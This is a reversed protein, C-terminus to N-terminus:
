DRRRLAIGAGILALGMCALVPLPWWTLGAQPILPKSPETPKETPKPDPPNEPDVKNTILFKSGISQVTVHFGDIADEVVTWHANPDLNKWECKWDNKESLKVVDAIAGDKLLSITLEDPRKVTGDDDWKKLAQLNIKTTSPPQAAAKVMVIAHGTEGVAEDNLVFLVSKPSYIMEDTQKKPGCLLYLGEQLGDVSDAGDEGTTFIHDATLEDLLIYGFLTDAVLQWDTSTKLNLSIPYDEYEDLFALTENQAITGVRYLHLQADAIPDDEVIYSVTLQYINTSAASATMGFCCLLSALIIVCSIGCLWKRNDRMM